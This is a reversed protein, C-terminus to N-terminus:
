GDRGGKPGRGVPDVVHLDLVRSVRDVDRCSSKGITTRSGREDRRLRSFISHKHPHHGNFDSSPEVIVETKGKEVRRRPRCAILTPHPNDTSMPTRM